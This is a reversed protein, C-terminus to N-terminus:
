FVGCVPVNQVQKNKVQIIQQKVNTVEDEEEGDSNDDGAEGGLGGQRSTWSSKRRASSSRSSQTVFRVRSVKRGSARYTEAEIRYRINTTEINTPFNRIQFCSELEFCLEASTPDADCGGRPSGGVGSSDSTPSMLRLRRTRNGFWTSIDIVPRARLVVVADSDYAGVVVDSHNNADLDIGGSLSYGFTTLPQDSSSSSLQRVGRRWNYDGFDHYDEDYDDQYEKWQQYGNSAFGGRNNNNNNRNTTSTASEPRRFNPVLVDEGRIVQSPRQGSTLGGPGGQFLYVAGAQGDYPAGVVLDPYGDANVDGAGAVAFGFRAERGFGGSTLKAPGRLVVPPRSDSIGEGPHNKYYYIAGTGFIRGSFSESDAKQRSAKHNAFNGANGTVISPDVPDSTRATYYFPAGVVLDAHGNNDLDVSALAYGFSSAFHDGSLILRM